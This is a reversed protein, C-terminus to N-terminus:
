GYALAMAENMQWLVDLKFELIELAREQASREKFHDLTFALAFKVDRRVLRMRSQFYELGGRDIWPYHHPWSELRQQHIQPAFLESLSSCIAEQWPARRAFNVYADVAFRVGPLVECLSEVRTRSLGVADALRLWADIGGSGVGEGDHDRIRQLWHRRVARNPCNAVIAADKLPLSVQYYFRNAVWARIQEPTAGGSNLLVNFAHHIHYARGQARLRREFEARTLPAASGADGAAGRVHCVAGYSGM